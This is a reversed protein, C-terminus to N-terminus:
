SCSSGLAIALTGEQDACVSDELDEDNIFSDDYDYDNPLGDDDDDNASLIPSPRKASISLSVMGKRKVTSRQARDTSSTKRHEYENLHEANKRYCQDGYPCSPKTTATDEETQWDLDGPHIAEQLHIPNKRYCFERYPCRERKASSSATVETIVVAQELIHFVSMSMEVDRLKLGRSVQPSFLAMPPNLLIMLAVPM